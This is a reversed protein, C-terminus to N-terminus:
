KPPLTYTGTYDLYLQTAVGIAPAFRRGTMTGGGKIGTWRGTGQILTWTAEFWSSKGSPDSRTTGQYKSTTTSGDEFTLINYGQITGSGKIYDLTGKTAVSAEEGKEFSALGTQDYLGIIHDPVDGMQIIEVKANFMVQRWKLTQAGAQTVSGILWAAIILIGVIVWINNSKRTAM